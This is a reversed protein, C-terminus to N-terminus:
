LISKERKGLRLILVHHPTCDGLVAERLALDVLSSLDKCVCCHTKLLDRQPAFRSKKKKEKKKLEDANRRARKVCLYTCEHTSDTKMM